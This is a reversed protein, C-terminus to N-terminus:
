FRKVCFLYSIAKLLPPFFVTVFVQQFFLPVEDLCPPKFGLCAVACKMLVERIISAIRCNFSIVRQHSKISWNSSPNEKFSNGQKAVCVGRVTLSPIICQVRHRSLLFFVEEFCESVTQKVFGLINLCKSEATYCFSVTAIADGVSRGLTPSRLTYESGEDQRSNCDQYGQQQNQKRLCIILRQVRVDAFHM